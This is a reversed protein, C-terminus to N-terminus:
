RIIIIIPGIVVIPPFTGDGDDKGDVHCVSKTAGTAVPLGGNLRYMEEKTLKENAFGELNKLSKFKKM